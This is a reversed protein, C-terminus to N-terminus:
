FSQHDTREGGVDNQPRKKASLRGQASEGNRLSNSQASRLPERYVGRLSDAEGYWGESLDAWTANKAEILGIKKSRRWGKIQKERQIADRIHGWTEFYVLREIRYRDTFGPALRRKHEAVRRELNNTVGTYLTRSRSAMIYVYSTRV